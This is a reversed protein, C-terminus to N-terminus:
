EPQRKIIGNTFKNRFGTHGFFRSAAPAGFDVGKWESIMNMNLGLSQWVVNTIVDPSDGVQL